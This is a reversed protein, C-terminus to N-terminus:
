GRVGFDYSVYHNSKHNYIQLNWEQCNEQQM